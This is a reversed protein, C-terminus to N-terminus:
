CLIKLAHIYVVNESDPFSIRMSNKAWDNGPLNAKFCAVIRGCNDLHAKVLFRLDLYDVPFGWEAMVSINTAVAHEENTSLVTQGGHKKQISAM